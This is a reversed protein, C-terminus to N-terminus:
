CVTGFVTPFSLSRRNQGSQGAFKSLVCDEGTTLVSDWFSKSFEFKKQMTWVAWFNKSVM